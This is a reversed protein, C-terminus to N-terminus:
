DLVGALNWRIKWLISLRYALTFSRATYNWHFGLLGRNVTWCTTAAKLPFFHLMRFYTSNWSFDVGLCCTCNLYNPSSVPRPNKYYYDEQKRSEKTQSGYIYCWFLLPIVLFLVTGFTCRAENLKTETSPSTFKEMRIINGCNPPLPVKENAFHHDCIWCYFEFLIKSAAMGDRVWGRGM